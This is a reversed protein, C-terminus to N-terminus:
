RRYRYYGVGVAVLVVLVAIPLLPLGGGDEPEVIQVPLRYSDSLETDGDAEDYRFDLSVPYSKELASGAAGVGFVLTESEGPELSAVYAEDDTTSIPADAFLKASVDSVAEEDANRVTVALEGASGATVTANEVTLDFVPSEPGVEARVDLADSSRRDGDDNRYDAVFSFQRPGSRASESVEVEFTATAREGPDLTGVAYERETVTITEHDSTWELVVDSIPADGENVLEAELSGDEGVALDASPNELAFDQEPAPTVGFTMGDDERAVGDADEFAVSLDFDYNVPNGSEATDLQFQLTRNEGASWNGVHRSAQESDGFTTQANKATVTASVDTAGETGANRVTVALRGEDGVQADNDVDVVEFRAEDVVRLRATLDETDSEQTRKGDGESIYSTYEYTAEIPLTYGGPEADEDIVVDYSLTSTSGEPLSGVVKDGTRVAAPSDGSDLEVTLARAETVQGNLSPNAASGSGLEGANLIVVDLTTEEGSTVRNDPLEASLDPSGYVAAMAIGPVFAITAVLVVTLLTSHKM